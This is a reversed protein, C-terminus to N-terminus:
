LTSVVVRLLVKHVINSSSMCAIVHSDGLLEQFPVADLELAAAWVLRQREGLHSWTLAEQALNRLREMFAVDREALGPNASFPRRTSASLICYVTYMLYTFFSVIYLNQITIYVTCKVGISVLAHGTTMECSLVKYMCTLGSVDTLHIVFPM